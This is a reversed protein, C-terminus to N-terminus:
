TGSLAVNYVDRPIAKSQVEHKISIRGTSRDMQILDNWCEEITETIAKNLETAKGKLITSITTNEFSRLLGIEEQAKRLWEIADVLRDGLAAEQVSNLSQDIRQIQEITKVLTENFIVEAKLLDVKSSADGVRDELDNGEDSQRVIERALARSEEIDAQLLKAQSIWGDVDPATERSRERIDAQLIWQLHSPMINSNTQYPIGVKVEERADRLLQLAVPLASASVDATIVEESTPYLGDKASNLIAQGLQEDSVRSPM